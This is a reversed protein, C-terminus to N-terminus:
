RYNHKTSYTYKFCHSSVAKKTKLTSEDYMEVKLAISIMILIKIKWGVSKTQNIISSKLDVYRMGLSSHGVHSEKNVLKVLERVIRYLM